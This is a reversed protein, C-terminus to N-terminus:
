PSTISHREFGHEFAPYTFDLASDSKRPMSWSLIKETTINQPSQWSLVAMGGL